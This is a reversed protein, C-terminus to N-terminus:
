LKGLYENRFFYSKLFSERNASAPISSRIRQAIGLLCFLLRPKKRLLRLTLRVLLKRLNIRRLYVQGRNPAAARRQHPANPREKRSQM